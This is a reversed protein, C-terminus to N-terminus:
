KDKQNKKMQETLEVLVSTLVDLRENVSDLERQTPIGLRNLAASLKDLVTATPSSQGREILSINSRSVGSRGALAELSWGRGERLEKVRRSIRATIDM